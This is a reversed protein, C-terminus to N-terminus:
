FIPAWKFQLVQGRFKERKFKWTGRTPTNFRKPDVLPPKTLAPLGADHWAIYCAYACPIFYYPPVGCVCVCVRVYKKYLPLLTLAPM